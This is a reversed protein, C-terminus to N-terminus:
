WRFVRHALVDVALRRGIWRSRRYAIMGSSEFLRMDVSKWNVSTHGRGWDDKGERGIVEEMKTLVVNKASEYSVLSGEVDRESAPCVGRRRRGGAREATRVAIIRSNVGEIRVDRKREDRGTELLNLGVRQPNIHDREWPDAIVEDFTFPEKVV